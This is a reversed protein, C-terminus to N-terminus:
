EWPFPTVPTIGYYLEIVRRFIPAAVESGEGSNEIMVVVAIEPEDIITGDSATYPEAPAYGVFWAHSNDVVTEATGTKGAVPVPLREFQYAATGAATSAVARLSEQIVQLDSPALPLQSQEEAPWPEEPAGGGAGIRDILVPRYLTGGNAIAAVLRVMQLPTVQVYGQGIAM